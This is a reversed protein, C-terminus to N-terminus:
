RMQKKGPSGAVMWVNVPHPLFLIDKYELQELDVQLPAAHRPGLKIGLRVNQGLQLRADMGTPKPPISGRQPPPPPISDNASTCAHKIVM